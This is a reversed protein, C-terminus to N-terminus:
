LSGINSSLSFIIIYKLNLLKSYVITYVGTRIPVFEAESLAIKEKKIVAEQDEPIEDLTLNDLEEEAAIIGQDSPLNVFKSPEIYDTRDHDARLAFEQKPEDSLFRSATEIENQNLTFFNFM